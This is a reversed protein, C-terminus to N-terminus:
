APGLPTARLVRNLKDKLQNRKEFFVRYISHMNFLKVMQDKDITDTTTELFKLIRTIIISTKTM